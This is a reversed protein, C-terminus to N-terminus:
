GHGRTLKLGVHLHTQAVIPGHGQQEVAVFLKLVGAVHPRYVRTPWESISIQYFPSLHHAAGQRKGAAIAPTVRNGVRASLAFVARSMELTRNISKKLRQKIEDTRIARYLSGM